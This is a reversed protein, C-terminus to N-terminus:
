ISMIKTNAENVLFDKWQALLKCKCYYSLQNKKNRDFFHYAKRHMCWVLHRTDCQLKFHLNAIKKITSKIKPM